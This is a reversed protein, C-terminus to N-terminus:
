TSSLFSKVIRLSPVSFIGFLNDNSPFYVIYGRQIKNDGVGYIAITKKYLEFSNYRYYTNYQEIIKSEYLEPKYGINKIFYNRNKKRLYKVLINYIKNFYKNIYKCEYFGFKVINIMIDKSFIQNFSIKSM